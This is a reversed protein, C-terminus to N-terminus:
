RSIEKEYEEQLAEHSKIRAEVLEGGQYDNRIQRMSAPTVVVAGGKTKVYKMPNSQYSQAKYGMEKVDKKVAKEVPIKEMEGAKLLTKKIKREKKYKFNWFVCFSTKKEDWWDLLKVKFGNEAVYKTVKLQM